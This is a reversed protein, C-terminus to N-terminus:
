VPRYGPSFPLNCGLFKLDKDKWFVRQPIHDFVLQVMQRSRYLDDELRKRETIDWLIAQIRGEELKVLSSEVLLLSGDKRRIHREFRIAQGISFEALRQHVLALEDPIYTDFLNVQLLEQRTYGLLDCLSSNIVLFKGDPNALYIGEAAQEILARYHEESERVAATQRAVREELEDAWARTELYLRQNEGLSHLLNSAMHDFAEGLRGLDDRGKLNIRYGLNGLGIQEAGILLKKIPRTISHSILFASGLSLFIALLIFIMISLGFDRSPAFAEAQDIKVVLCMQREDLWRYVIVSPVGRYDDALVSGSQKALCLNVAETHIGANLASPATLYRPRTVPLGATDVLFADSTSRINRQQVIFNLNEMNLYAALVGVLRGNPQTVPASVFIMAQSGPFFFPRDIYPGLKGHTFYARDVYVNGDLSPDTSLIVKGSGPDMAFLSLRNQDPGVWNKLYNLVTERYIPDQVENEGSATFALYNALGTDAAISVMSRTNVSSWEAIADQKEVATSLLDAVAATQLSTRGNNFSVEGVVVLLVIAFFGFALTLRATFSFRLNAL